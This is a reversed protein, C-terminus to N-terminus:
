ALRRFDARLVPALGGAAVAPHGTGATDHADAGIRAEGPRAESFGLGRDPLRLRSRRRKAFGGRGAASVVVEREDLLGHGLELGHWESAEVDLSADAGPWAGAAILTAGRERLRAALRSAETPAVRAPPRVAVVPIVDALAAVVALWQRGPEPVLVLRDLDIGFRLAAEVGFEPLGVVAVWRGSASPAALLAMVLTTSGHAEVVTGERLSGSPLLGAFAPHTPVARTELRTSQMGQIRAQLEEVRELRATPASLPATLTM